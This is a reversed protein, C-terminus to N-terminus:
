VVLDRKPRSLFPFENIIFLYLIYFVLLAALYDERQFLSSTADHAGAFSFGFLVSAGYWPVCVCM